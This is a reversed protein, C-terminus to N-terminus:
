RTLLNWKDDEFLWLHKNRLCPPLNSMEVRMREASGYLWLDTLQRVNPDECSVVQYNEPLVGSPYIDLIQTSSKGVRLGWVGASSGLYYFAVPAVYPHELLVEKQNEEYPIAQFATRADTKRWSTYYPILSAMSVILAILAVVARLSKYSLKSLGIGSWIYLLYAIGLLSKFAWVRSGFLCAYSFAVSIPVVILLSSLLIELHRKNEAQWETLIGWLFPGGYLLIGVILWVWRPVTEFIPLVLHASDLFHERSAALGTTSLSYFSLVDQYDPIWAGGAGSSRYRWLLFLIPSIGFLIMITSLTLRTDLFVTSQKNIWEWIKRGWGFALQIAVVVLGYMHTWSMGIGVLAWGVYFLYSEELLAQSLFIYSLLWLLGLLTYGRTEQAYYIDFSSLAVFWGAYVAAWKGWKGSVYMITIVLTTVSFAVSLIRLGAETSPLILQSWKLLLYYLPPHPDYLSLKLIDLVSLQTVAWSWAEDIFLGQNGLYLLRLLTGFGIVVVPLFRVRDRCSTAKGLNMERM